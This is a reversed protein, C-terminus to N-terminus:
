SPLSFWNSFVPRVSKTCAVDGTTLERLPILVFEREQMRPHPITLDPETMVINGYTLIDIDLPRPGWRITRDRSFKDEIQHCVSLLDYPSLLTKFRAVINYFLPQNEYGVPETEYISSVATFEIGEHFALALMGERLCLLRDGLNSGLSLYVEAMEPENDKHKGSSM